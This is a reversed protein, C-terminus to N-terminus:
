DDSDALQTVISCIQDNLYKYMVILSIVIGLVIHVMLLNAINIDVAQFLLLRLKCALLNQIRKLATRTHKEIFIKSKLARQVGVLLQSKVKNYLSVSTCLCLYDWFILVYIAINAAYFVRRWSPSFFIHWSAEFYVLTYVGALLCFSNMVLLLFLEKDLATNVIQIEDSLQELRGYYQDLRKQKDNVPMRVYTNLASASVEMEIKDDAIKEEAVLQETRLVDQLETNLELLEERLFWCNLTYLKLAGALAFHPIFLGYSIFINDWPPLKFEMEYAIYLAFCFTLLFTSFVLFYAFAEEISFKRAFVRSSFCAISNCARGVEAMAFLRFIFVMLGLMLQVRILEWLFPSVDHFIQLLPSHIFHQNVCIMYFLALVIFNILGWLSLHYRQTNPEFSYLQFGTLLLFCNSIRLIRQWNM